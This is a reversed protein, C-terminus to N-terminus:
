EYNLETWNTNESMVEITIGADNDIMSNLVSSGYSTTGYCQDNCKYISGSSGHFSWFNDKYEVKTIGSNLKWSAGEAFGGYWCAFVKYISPIDDHDIKVVVWSEPTYTM